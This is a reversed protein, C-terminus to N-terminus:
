CHKRQKFSRVTRWKSEIRYRGVNWPCDSDERIEFGVNGETSYSRGSTLQQVDVVRLWVGEFWQPHLLRPELLVQTAPDDLPLM